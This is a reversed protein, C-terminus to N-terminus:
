RGRKEGLACVDLCFAGKTRFPGRNCCRCIRGCSSPPSRPATSRGSRASTACSTVDARLSRARDDDTCREGAIPRSDNTTTPHHPGGKSPGSVARSLRCPLNVTRTARARLGASKYGLSGTMGRGGWVLGAPAMSQGINRLGSQWRGFASRVGVNGAGRGGRSTRTRTQGGADQVSRMGILTM